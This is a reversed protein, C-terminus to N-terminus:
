VGVMAGRHGIFRQSPHAEWAAVFHKGLLTTRQRSVHGRSRVIRLGFWLEGVDSEVALRRRGERAAVARGTGAELRREASRRSSDQRQKGRWLESRRRTVPGGLPNYSPRESEVGPDGETM